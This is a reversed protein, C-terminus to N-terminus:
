RLSIFRHSPDVQVVRAVRRGDPFRAEIRHSGPALPRRLPTAGVDKGNIWVHAWPRANVHVDIAPPPPAEVVARALPREVQPAPRAQAAPEPRARQKPIHAPWAFLAVILVLAIPIADAQVARRALRPFGAITLQATRDVGRTVRRLRARSLRALEHSRRITWDRSTTGAARCHATLAEFAGRALEGSALGFVLGWRVLELAHRQRRPKTARSLLLTSEPEPESPLTVEARAVALPPKPEELPLEGWDLTIEPLELDLEDWAPEPDPPLLAPTIPERSPKRRALESKLRQPVGHALEAIRARDGEGLQARLRPSLGPHAVIADYIALIEADPLSEPLLVSLGAGLADALALRDECGTGAVVIALAPKAARAIEALKRLSSPSQEHIDDVLLLTRRAPDAHLADVLAAQAARSRRPPVVDFLVRLLVGPLDDPEGTLRLLWTRQFSLSQREALVRLLLTKGIGHPGSLLLPSGGARLGIELTSLAAEFSETPVYLRPDSSAWLPDTLRTDLM